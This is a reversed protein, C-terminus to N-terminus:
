ESEAKGVIPHRNASPSWALTTLIYYSTGGSASWERGTSRQTKANAKLTDCKDRGKWVHGRLLHIHDDTGFYQM